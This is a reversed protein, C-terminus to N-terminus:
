GCFRSLDRCHQTAHTAVFVGQCCAVAAALAAAVHEMDGANVSVLRPLILPTLMWRKYTAKQAARM